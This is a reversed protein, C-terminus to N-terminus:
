GMIKRLFIGILIGWSIAGLTFQNEGMPSIIKETKAAELQRYLYSQSSPFEALFSVIADAYYNEPKM